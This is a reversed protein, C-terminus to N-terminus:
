REPNDVFRILAQESGDGAQAELKIISTYGGPRNQAQPSIVKIMRRAAEKNALVAEIQRMAHVTPQKGKTVLPEIMRQVAKAKTLSTQIQGHTV